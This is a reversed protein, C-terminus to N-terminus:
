VYGRNHRCLSATLCSIFQFVMLFMVCIIMKVHCILMNLLSCQSHRDYDQLACDSTLSCVMDKVFMNMLTREGFNTTLM